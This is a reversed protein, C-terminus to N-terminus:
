ACEPRMAAAGHMGDLMLAAGRGGRGRLVLLPPRAVARQRQERPQVQRGDDPADDQAHQGHQGQGDDAVGGERGGGRHASGRRVRHLRKGSSGQIRRDPGRMREGTRGAGAGCAVSAAM